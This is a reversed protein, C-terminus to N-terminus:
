ADTEQTKDLGQMKAVAQANETLDSIKPISGVVNDLLWDMTIIDQPPIVQDATNMVTGDQACLDGSFPILTDSCINNRLLDVLRRTDRPLDQSCILDVVGASIGWWYSTARSGAAADEKWTGNLVIRIIKEYLKGWHWTTMALNDPIEGNIHYLGFHRSGKDPSTMDQGMVYEIEPNDRIDIEHQKLTSWDLYVKAHPNVMRAGMAFANINAAMGYIPYDAIYGIKDTTAMSGAIIGALFKAEYMRAYYTRLTPHSTNLSCNLVKVEPYKAAIKLSAPMMVPSTTFLMTHGDRIAEEMCEQDNEGAVINEFATTEIQGPFVNDLYLRGLEHSYTWGSTRHTKEYLFAIKVKGSNDPLILNLLNRYRNPSASERPPDMRLEISQEETLVVFEDWIQTLDRKLEQASKQKTEEYGFVTLFTLLADGVTIPLKGGGKSEFVKRFRTYVADFEQRDESTWRAGKPTGVQELFQAFRGKESFYISYIGTVEYFDMFEFYIANEKTDNRKPVVRIVSCPVSYADLFKLVSVRKNGEMVYFRGMFEYAKVPDRLGEELLNSHLSIWKAAFETNTDLLPMFNAAFSNTRGRTKTGVILELPIECLGINVEYEVKTYSLIEDLVPLYPYYGKTLRARYEKQGSKLANTYQEYSM